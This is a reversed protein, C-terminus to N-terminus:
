SFSCSILLKICRLAEQFRIPEWSSLFSGVTYPVWLNMETNVLAWKKDWGSCVIGTRAMGNYKELIQQLIIIEDTVL